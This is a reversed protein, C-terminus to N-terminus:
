TIKKYIFFNDNSWVIEFGLEELKQKKLNSSKIKEMMKSKLIDNVKGDRIDRFDYERSLVPDEPKQNLDLLSLFVYGKQTKVAEYFEENDMKLVENKTLVSYDSNFVKKSTKFEDDLIRVLKIYVEEDLYRYHIPPDSVTILLIFGVVLFQKIFNKKVRQLIKSHIYFILYSTALLFVWLFYWGVRGKVFSLDFVGTLTSFGFTVLLIITFLYKSDLMGFVIGILVILSAVWVFWSGLDLLTNVTRLNASDYFLYDTLIGYYTAFPSMGSPSEEKATPVAVQAVTAATEFLISGYVAMSTSKQITSIIQNIVFLLLGFSNFILFLLFLKNNLRKIYNISLIILIPAFLYVSLTPATIGTAILILGALPILYRKNEESWIISISILLAIALFSLTNATLGIIVKVVENFIGMLSILVFTYWIKLNNYSYIVSVFLYLVVGIASGFYNLVYSPDFISYIPSLIIGFGPQYATSNNILSKNQINTQYSDIFGISLHTLADYFLYYILILTIVTYIYNIKIKKRLNPQEKKSRSFTLLSVIVLLLLFFWKYLYTLNIIKFFFGFIIFIFPSAVVYLKQIKKFPIFSTFFYVIFAYSTFLTITLVSIILGDLIYKSM